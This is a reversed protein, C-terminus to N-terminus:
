GANSSKTIILGYELLLVKNGKDGRIYYMIYYMNSTYMFDREGFVPAAKLSGLKKVSKIKGFIFETDDSYFVDIFEKVYFLVTQMRDNVIFRTEPSIGANKTEGFVFM